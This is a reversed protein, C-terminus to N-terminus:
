ARDTGEMLLVVGGGDMPSCAISCLITRGIRNVAAVDVPGSRAGSTQCSAVVKRVEDTPLGFDLSFFPRLRVEGSRLGWM